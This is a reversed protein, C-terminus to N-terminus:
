PPFRELDEASDRDGVHLAIAEDEGPFRAAAVLLIGRRECEDHLDSLRTWLDTDFKQGM